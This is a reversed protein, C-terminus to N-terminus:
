FILICFELHWMFNLFLLAFGTFFKTAKNKQSKINKSNQVKDNSMEKSLSQTEISERM